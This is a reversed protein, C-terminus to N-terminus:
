QNDLTITKEGKENISVKSGNKATRDSTRSPTSSISELPNGLEKLQGSFLCTKGDGDYIYLKGNNQDFFGIRGANTAIPIVNFFGGSQAALQTACFTSYIAAAMAIILCSFTLKRM